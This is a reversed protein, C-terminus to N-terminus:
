LTLNHSISANWLLTALLQYGEDTPHIGDNGIHHSTIFDRPDVYVCLPQNKCALAFQTTAYDVVQHLVRPLYYFGLFVIPIHVHQTWFSTLLTACQHIRAQCTESLVTRCEDYHTMLDNGGGDMILTTVTERHPVHDWQSPISPIWGPELAAGVHAFNELPHGSWEELHHSLPSPQGGGWLMGSWFLSDGLIVTRQSKEVMTRGRLSPSSSMCQYSWSYALPPSTPTCLYWQKDVSINYLHRYPIMTITLTTSSFLPLPRTLLVLM